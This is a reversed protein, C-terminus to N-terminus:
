RTPSTRAPWQVGGCRPALTPPSRCLRMPPRASPRPPPHSALLSRTTPRRFRTQRPVRCTTRSLRPPPATSPRRGRIHWLPPTTRPRARPHTSRPTGNAAAVPNAFITLLASDATVSRFLHRPDWTVCQEEIQGDSFCDQAATPIVPVSSAALPEEKPERIGASIPPTLENFNYQTPTEMIQSQSASSDFHSTEAPPSPAYPAIPSGLPFSPKLEFPQTVDASFAKRLSEIKERMDDMPTVEICRELIRMHRTFYEKADTNYEPDPITVAALHLM